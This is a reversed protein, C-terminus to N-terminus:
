KNRCVFINGRNQLPISGTCKNGQFSTRWLYIDCCLTPISTKLWDTGGFLSNRTDWQRAFIITITQTCGILTLVIIYHPIYHEHQMVQQKSNYWGVKYIYIVDSHTTVEPRLNEVFPNRLWLHSQITRWYQWM